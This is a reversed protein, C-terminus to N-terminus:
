PVRAPKLAIRVLFAVDVAPAPSWGLLLIPKPTNPPNTGEFERLLRTM